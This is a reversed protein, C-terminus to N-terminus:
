VPDPTCRCCSLLDTEDMPVASTDDVGPGEGGFVVLSMGEACCEPMPALWMLGFSPKLSVQLRSTSIAPSTLTPKSLLKLCYLVLM